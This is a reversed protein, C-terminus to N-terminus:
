DSRFLFTEMWDRTDRLGTVFDVPVVGPFLTCLLTNDAQSHPVDGGRLPLEECVVQKGLLSEIETIVKRLSVRTGFALNVPTPASTTHLVASAIVEAVTAVYTFDRTQSGDGHVPLAEGRLAAALFAPIVAAYASGPQQKPGFVNFFRFVLSPIGFSESWARVYAEGALKSAAYPSRPLPALTEVKPLIPNAGYVSSSGAFIIFPRTSSARCAELVNLTGELNVRHTAIPDAISRPVSPRAALHIVADAGDIISVMSGADLITGEILEADIGDLNAAYGTSLDDIAVIREVGEEAALRACVNSGIFGAGGTVVVRM